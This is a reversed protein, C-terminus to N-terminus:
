ESSLHVSLLNREARQLHEAVTSDDLEFQTAIEQVSAKRPVDYYGREFAAELVERQRDTLADLPNEKARYGRLQELSADTGSTDLQALEDHLRDQPGTWTLTLGQDTVRAQECRPRGADDTPSEDRGETDGAEIIYVYGPGESSVQEWWEVADMTDLRRPELQDEVHIRLVGRDGECSLIETDRVGADQFVEFQFGRDALLEPGFNVVAQRM